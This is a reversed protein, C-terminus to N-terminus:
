NHEDVLGAVVFLFRSIVCLFAWFIRGTTTANTKSKPVDDSSKLNSEKSEDNTFFMEGTGLWAVMDVPEADDSIRPVLEEDSDDSDEVGDVMGVLRSLFVDLTLRPVLPLSPLSM